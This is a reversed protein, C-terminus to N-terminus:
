CRIHSRPIMKDIFKSLADKDAYQGALSTMDHLHQEDWTYFERKRLYPEHSGDQKELLDQLAEFDPKNVPALRCLAAFQLLAEGYQKLLGRLELVQKWQLGDGRIAHPGKMALIDYEFQSRPSDKANRDEKITVRLVHDLNVIEAQMCLLNRANLILFRRFICLGSYTGMWGATANYGQM